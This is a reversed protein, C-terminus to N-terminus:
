SAHSHVALWLANESTEKIRHLQHSKLLIYDGSHMTICAGGKFELVANGSALMVWEDHDQDYWQGDTLHNSVIREITLSDSKYLTEFTESGSKPPKNQTFFNMM